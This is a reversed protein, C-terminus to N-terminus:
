NRYKKFHDREEKEIERLLKKYKKRIANEYSSLRGTEKRKDDYKEIIYQFESKRGRAGDIGLMPIGTYMPMGFLPIHRTSRVGYKPSSSPPNNKKPDSQWDFWKKFYGADQLLNAAVGFAPIQGAFFNLPDELLRESSYKSLLFMKFLNEWFIDDFDVEKGALWDKLADPAGGAMVMLPTLYMFNKLAQKKYGRKALDYTNSRYLNLQKLSYTKLQYFLAAEPSTLAWEPLESEAIPQHELLVWYALSIVEDPVTDMQDLNKLMAVVKNISADDGLADKILMGYKPNDLLKDRKALKAMSDIAANITSEKAIRDLWSFGIAKFGLNLTKGLRSAKTSYEAAIRNLGMNKATIKSEILKNVGPIGGLMAKSVAKAFVYPDKSRFATGLIIDGFQTITTPIQLMLAIYTSDKIRSVWKSKLPSYAFRAKFIDLVEQQDEESLKSEMLLGDVFAGIQDETAGLETNVSKGFLMRRHISEHMNEIYEILGNYPDDYFASSEKTVEALKRSKSHKEKTLRTVPSGSKTVSNLVKIRLNLPLDEKKVGHKKAEVTLADSFVGRDENVGLHKLLGKYDRVNRPFYGPRYGIEIWIKSRLNKYTKEFEILKDLKKKSDKDKNVMNLLDAKKDTSKYKIKKSDLWNKINKVTWSDDYKNPIEKRKIPLSEKLERYTEAEVPTMGMAKHYLSDLVERLLAHELEIGHKKIMKNARELWFNPVSEGKKDDIYEGNMLSYVLERYDEINNKEIKRLADLVPQLKNMDQQVYLQYKEYTMKLARAISLGGGGKLDINKLRESIIHFKRGLTGAKATIVGDSKEPDKENRIKEIIEKESKSDEKTKVREAARDMTEALRTAIDDDSIFKKVVLNELRNHLEQVPKSDILKKGMKKFWNKMVNMVKKFWKKSSDTMNRANNAYQTFRMKFNDSNIGLRNGLKQMAPSLQDYTFRGADILMTKVLDMQAPSPFSSFSNLADSIDPSLEKLQNVNYGKYTWPAIKKGDKNVYGSMRLTLLDEFYASELHPQGPHMPSHGERIGFWIGAQMQRPTVGRKEALEKVIQEYQIYESSTFTDKIVAMEKYSFSKRNKPKGRGGGWEVEAKRKGVGIVTAKFGNGKKDYIWVSTGKIDKEPNKPNPKTAKVNDATAIKWLGFERAMWLDLVVANEDKKLAKSFNTVKEKGIKKPKYNPNNRNRHNDIANQLNGILTAPYLGTDLKDNLKYQAYAKLGYGINSHLDVGASTIAIFDIALDAESGFEKQMYDYFNDYWDMAHKGSEFTQLLGFKDQAKNYRSKVDKIFNAKAIPHLKELVQVEYQRRSLGGRQRENAAKSWAKVFDAKNTGFEWMWNYISAAQPQNQGTLTKTNISIKGQKNKYFKVPIPEFLVSPDLKAKPKADGVVQISAGIKPNKVYEIIYAKANNYLKKLYPKVGKGIKKVMETSFQKFNKAGRRIIGAGIIAADNIKDTFTYNPDTDDFFKKVGVSKEFREIARQEKADVDNIDNVDQTEQAMGQPPIADEKGKEKKSSVVGLEELIAQNKADLEAQTEPDIEPTKKVPAETQTEVVEDVSLDIIDYNDDFELNRGQLIIEMGVIAEEAMQVNEIVQDNESDQKSDIYSQLKKAAKKFKNISNTKINKVWALQKTTDNPNRIDDVYVQSQENETLETNVRTDYDQDKLVPAEEVPTEQVPIEEPVVEEVVPEVVKAPTEEVVPTEETLTAQKDTLAKEAKKIVAKNKTQKWKEGTWVEWSGDELKRHNRLSKTGGVVSEINVTNKDEPQEVIEQEEVTEETTTKKDAEQVPAEQTTAAEEGYVQELNETIQESTPVAGALDEAAQEMKRGEEAKRQFWPRAEITDGEEAVPPRDGEVEITQDNAITSLEDLMATEVQAAQEKTDFEIKKIQKKDSILTVEYKGTESNFENTVTAGKNIIDQKLQNENDAKPINSLDRQKPDLRSQNWINVAGMPVAQGVEGFGEALVDPPSIEDGASLSGAVEGSMGLGAQIGVEGTGRIVKSSVKGTKLAPKIIRGAVGGSIADIVAIPVGKQVGKKRAKKMLRENQLANLLDDPNTVDVGEEQMIELIKGTYEMSFGALGAATINGATFGAVSGGVTGAGPIFSGAAAGAVTASGITAPAITLYTPLFQSMSEVTLPLVVDLPNLLAIKMAEGFTESKFFKEQDKTGKLGRIAAQRQAIYKVREEPDFGLETNMLARTTEYNAIGKYFSNVLNRYAGVYQNDSLAQEKYKPNNRMLTSTQKEMANPDLNAQSAIDNLTPMEGSFAKQALKDVNLSTQKTQLSDRVLDSTMWSDLGRYDHIINAIPKSYKDIRMINHRDTDPMNDWGPIENRMSDQVMAYVSDKTGDAHYFYPKVGEETPNQNIWRENIGYRSVDKTGNDNINVANDNNSSEFYSIIPAVEEFTPNENAYAAEEDQKIKKDQELQKEKEQNQFEIQQEELERLLKAFEDEEQGLTDIDVNFRNGEDELDKLLQEFIDSM